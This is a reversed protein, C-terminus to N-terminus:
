EFWHYEMARTIAATRNPVELKQYLNLTHTKVTGPAVFLKQAIAKNPLGSVMLFLVEKERDTLLSLTKRSRPSLQEAPRWHWAKEGGEKKIAPSQREEALTLSRVVFNGLTKLIYLHHQRYVNKRPSRVTILGVIKAGIRLPVYLAANPSFGVMPQPKGPLYNYLDKDMDNIFIASGHRICWPALRDELTADVVFDPVPRNNEIIGKFTITQEEENYLGISFQYADMLQNVSSYITAIVEEVSFDATILEGIESLLRLQETWDLSPRESVRRSWLKVKQSFVESIM